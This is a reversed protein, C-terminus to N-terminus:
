KNAGQLVVDGFDRSINLALYNLVKKPEKGEFFRLRAQYGKEHDNVFIEEVLKLAILRDALQEIDVTSKPGVFLLRHLKRSSASVKTQKM